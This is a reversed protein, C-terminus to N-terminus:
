SANGHATRAGSEVAEHKEWPAAAEVPPAAVGEVTPEKHGVTSLDFDAHGLSCMGSPAGSEEVRGLSPAAPPASGPSSWAGAPSREGASM